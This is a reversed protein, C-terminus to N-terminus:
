GIKVGKQPVPPLQEWYKGKYANDSRAPDYSLRWALGDDTVALVIEHMNESFAVSIQTINRPTPMM